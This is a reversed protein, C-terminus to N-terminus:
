GIITKTTITNICCIKESTGICNLNKTVDKQPLLEKM